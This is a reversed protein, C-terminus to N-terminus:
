IRLGYFRAPNHTLIKEKVASSIDSRESVEDLHNDRAEAHPMDASAMVHDDGALDLVRPVMPEDGEISLYIHGGKLYESPKRRSVPRGFKERVVFHYRDLRDLMYPLWDGGAELFAVRLDPHRDLVGWGTMSFFAMLVPLTFSIGFAAFCDNCSMMLGPHSWGVHVAVPLRQRVAEDWVPDLSEHDLLKDGATGLTYLAVAGLERARGVEAVADEPSRLPILAGWKLREPAQACREGLWTNYSRMLAAEYRADETLHTLFLTPYLVSVDIRARDMDALRSGVDDLTQSPIGFPKSRGLTSSPPSGGFTAGQGVPRPHVHGDILWYSDQTSNQPIGHLDVHLPRREWYRKELYTFTAECEEVHSDCDIVPLRAM